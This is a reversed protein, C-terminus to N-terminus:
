RIEWVVTVTDSVDIDDPEIDIDCGGSSDESMGRAMAPMSRYMGRNIPTSSVELEEWSYDITIIDGLTVGAAQSLVKAKEKSDEIANMLLSNKAAESNKVSYVIRFEPKSELQSLAYLIKGLRENDVDFEIKMSHSYKYGVLKRKWAKNMAQYNEYQTDVSFNITKLDNRAFGLKEFCDKLIGFQITSEETASEYSDKTDEINIFLKTLDPKVSIKGKGTVKITRDM